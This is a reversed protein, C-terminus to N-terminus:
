GYWLTNRESKRVCLFPRMDRCRQMAGNGTQSSAPRASNCETSPIPPHGGYHYCLLLRRPAERRCRDWRATRTPHKESMNLRDPHSKCPLSDKRILPSAQLSVVPVSPQQRLPFQPPMPLTAGLGAFRNCRYGANICEPLDHVADPHLHLFRASGVDAPPVPAATFVTARTKMVSSAAVPGAWV